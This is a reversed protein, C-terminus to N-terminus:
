INYNYIKKNNIKYVMSSINLMKSWNDCVM